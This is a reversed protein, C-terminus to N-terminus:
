LPDFVKLGPIAVFGADHTWIETAGNEYALLAIQLDFIRSGIVKLDCAMQALRMGFDPGPQWIAGAGTELLAQLFSVAQEPTSPGGECSPHTVVSWFEGVAQMAIGWGAQSRAARQIAIRAAKHEAVGSRHAYILINTDIAIM